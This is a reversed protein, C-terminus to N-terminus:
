RVLRVLVVVVLVLVVKDMMSVALVVVLLDMTMEQMAVADM